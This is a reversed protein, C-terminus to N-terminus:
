VVLTLDGIEVYIEFFILSMPFYIHGETKPKILEEFTEMPDLNDISEKYSNNGKFPMIQQNKSNKAEIKLVTCSLFFNEITSIIRM